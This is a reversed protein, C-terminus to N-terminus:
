NYVPSIVGKVRRLEYNFIRGRRVFIALWTKGNEALETAYAYGDIERMRNELLNFHTM